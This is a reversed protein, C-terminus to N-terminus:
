VELHKAWDCSRIGGCIGCPRVRPEPNVYEARGARYAIAAYQRVIGKTLTMTPPLDRAFGDLRVVDAVYDVKFSM